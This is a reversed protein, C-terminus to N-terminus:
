EEDDDWSSGQRGRAVQSSGGGMKLDANGKVSAVQLLTTEVKVAMMAPTQYHKKM